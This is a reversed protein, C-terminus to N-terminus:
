AIHTVAIFASVNDLRGRLRMQPHKTEDYFAETRLVDGKELRGYNECAGADSIYKMGTNSNTHQMAFKHPQIWGPRLGYYQISNCFVKDNIYLKVETTGSHGHRIM